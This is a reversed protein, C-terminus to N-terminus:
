PAAAVGVGGLGRQGPQEGLRLPGLGLPELLRDLLARPPCHASTM